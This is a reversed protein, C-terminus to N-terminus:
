STGGKANARDYAAAAVCYACYNGTHPPDTKGCDCPKSQRMLGLVAALLDAHSNWRLLMEAAYERSKDFHVIGAGFSCVGGGASNMLVPPYTVM